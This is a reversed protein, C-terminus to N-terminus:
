TRDESLAALIRTEYDAQAASMGALPGCYSRRDRSPEWDWSEPGSLEAWWGDDFGVTYEGVPCKAEWVGCQETWELSKVKVRLADDAPAASACRLDARVYETWGEVRANSHGALITTTKGQRHAVWIREPAQTM